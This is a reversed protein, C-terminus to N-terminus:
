LWEELASHTPHIVEAGSHIEDLPVAREATEIWALADVSVASIVISAYPRGKLRWWMNPVTEKLGRIDSFSFAARWPGVHSHVEVLSARVDHARKILRARTADEM